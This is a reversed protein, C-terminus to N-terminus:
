PYYHFSLQFFVAWAQEWRSSWSHCVSRQPDPLASMELIFFDSTFGPIMTVPMSLLAGVFMLLKRGYRDSLISFPISCVVAALGFTTLIAGVNTISVGELPLFVAIAVEYFGLGAALPGAGLVVKSVQPPVEGFSRM